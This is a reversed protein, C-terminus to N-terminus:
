LQPNHISFYMSFFFFFTETTGELIYGCKNSAGGHSSCFMTSTKNNIFLFLLRLIHKPDNFGMLLAPIIKKSSKDGVM